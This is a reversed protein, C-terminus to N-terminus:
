SEEESDDNSEAHEGLKKEVAEEIAQRQGIEGIVTTIVAFLAAAAASWFNIKKFM